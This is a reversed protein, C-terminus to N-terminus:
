ADRVSVPFTKCGKAAENSPWPERKRRRVMFKARLQHCGTAVTKAQKAREASLRNAASQWRNCGRPEM